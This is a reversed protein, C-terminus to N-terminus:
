YLEDDKKKLSEFFRSTQEKLNQAEQKGFFLRVLTYEIPLLIIKMWYYKKMKKALQQHKLIEEEDIDTNYDFAMEVFANLAAKEQRNAKPHVFITGMKNDYNASM